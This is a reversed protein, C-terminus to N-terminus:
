FTECCDEVCIKMIHAFLKCKPGATAMSLEFQLLRTRQPAHIHRVIKHSNTLEFIMNRM